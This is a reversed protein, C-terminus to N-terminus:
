RLVIRSVEWGLRPCFSQLQASRGLGFITVSKFDDQWRCGMWKTNDPQVTMAHFPAHWPLIFFAREVHHKSGKRPQEEICVCSERPSMLFSDTIKPSKEKKKRRRRERCADFTTAAVEICSRKVYKRRLIWFNFGSNVRKKNHCTVFFYTTAFLSYTVAQTGPKLQM